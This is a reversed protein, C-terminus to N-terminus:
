RSPWQHQGKLYAYWDGWDQDYLSYDGRLSKWIIPPDNDRLKEIAKQAQAASTKKGVKAEYSKLAAADFARFNAGKELLNELVAQELKPLSKFAESLEVRDLERQREAALKVHEVFQRADGGALRADEIYHNFFQPRQGCLNFAESLAGIDLGIYNPQDREFAAVFARVFPEGLTPLPQVRSGWFPTAATNLLRMLKDRHSGSMVLLLNAEGKKRMQDRASKLASMTADGDASTLAHQAEDIILAIKKGTQEHISALVQHLSMGGTAGIKSTDVKVGLVNISDLGISLAARAVPGQSERFAFALKAAIVAMPSQDKQTWLDAYIVLLGRRQLEPLLEDELFRSKGTRRPAALFLGNQADSWKYSGTLGDAIQQALWPREYYFDM